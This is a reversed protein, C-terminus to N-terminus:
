PVKELETLTLVTPLPKVGTVEVRGRVPNGPQIGDLLSSNAVLFYQKTASRYGPMEVQELTVGRKDAAISVVRGTV